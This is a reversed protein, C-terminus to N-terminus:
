MGVVKMGLSRMVKVIEGVLARMTNENVSKYPILQIPLAYPKVHRQESSIMMVYVNSAPRRKHRYLSRVFTTLQERINALSQSQNIGPPVSENDELLGVLANINVTVNQHDEILKQLEEITWGASFLVNSRCTKDSLKETYIKQADKIAVAVIIYEM